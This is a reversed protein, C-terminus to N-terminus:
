FINLLMVNLDLTVMSGCWICYVAKHVEIFSVISCLFALEFVGARVIFM